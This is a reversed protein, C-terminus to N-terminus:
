EEKFLISKNVYKVEEELMVTRSETDVAEVEGILQDWQHRIKKVYEIFQKLLEVTQFKLEEPYERGSERYERVNNVVKLMSMEFNILAKDYVGKDNKAIHEVFPKFENNLFYDLSQENKYIANYEDIEHEFWHEGANYYPYRHTKLTKLRVKTLKDRDFEPCMFRMYMRENLEDDWDTCVLFHEFDIAPDVWAFYEVIEQLYDLTHIKNKGMDDRLRELYDALRLSVNQALLNFRGM